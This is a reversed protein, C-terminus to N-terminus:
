IGGHTRRRHETITRAIHLQAAPKTKIATPMEVNLEDALKRLVALTLRKDGDLLAIVKEQESLRRVDEAVDSLSLPQVVKSGKPLLMLKTQKTVIGDIEDTSLGKVLSALQSLLMSTVAATNEM